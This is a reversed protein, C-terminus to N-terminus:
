KKFRRIPDARKTDFESVSRLGISAKLYEEAIIKAYKRAEHGYYRKPMYKNVLDNLTKNM